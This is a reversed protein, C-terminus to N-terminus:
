RMFVNSTLEQEEVLVKYLPAKKGDALLQTLIDLAYSDEHYLDVGPWVMRLEPLRAFNDEYYKKKTTSLTVPMDPLPEIEEGRPIEDFYKYIWEKAQESDFDGAIVLTANNPVYWRNYFDKVDQLTANQLDELSGIVQWNYPHGQPY